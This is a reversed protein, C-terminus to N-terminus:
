VNLGGEEVEQPTEEEQPQEVHPQLGMLQDYNAAAANDTEAERKEIEAAPDSIFPLLSLLTEESLINRCIGSSRRM